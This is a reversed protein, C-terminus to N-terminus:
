FADHPFPKLDKVIVLRKQEHVGYIVTVPPLVRIMMRLKAGPLCHWPDGFELPISQLQSDITKIATLIDSGLGKKVARVCLKRILGRVVESYVVKYLPAM